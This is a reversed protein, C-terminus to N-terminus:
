QLKPDVMSQMEKVRQAESAPFVLTADKTHIVILDDCGIMSITHSHDDSVALTRKCDLTVSSTDSRNGQADANLTEGYSPWSGVDLWEVQM